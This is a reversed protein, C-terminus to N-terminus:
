NSFLKIDFHWAHEQLFFLPSIEGKSWPFNTGEDKSVEAPSPVYGLEIWMNLISELRDQFGFNFQHPSLKKFLDAAGGEVDWICQFVTHM